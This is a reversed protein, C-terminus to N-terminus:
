LEMELHGTAHHFDARGPPHQLAWYSLAGNITEIVTTLGVRVRTGVPAHRADLPLRVTLVLSQAQQLCQIKPAERLMLELRGVRYGSFQYAAWSGSPSFNYECYTDASGATLFLECCTHKWLETARLARGDAPVRLLKIDADIRYRLQLQEAGLRTLEVTVDRV